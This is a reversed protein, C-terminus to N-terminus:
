QETIGELLIGDSYEWVTDLANIMENVCDVHCWVTQSRSKNRRQYFSLGFEGPMMHTDCVACRQKKGRVNNYKIDGTPSLDMKSNKNTFTKKELMRKLDDCSSLSIWALYSANESKGKLLVAHEGKRITEGSYTCRIDSRTSTLRIIGDSNSLSQKM